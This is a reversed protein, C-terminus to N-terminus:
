MSEAFLFLENIPAENAVDKMSQRDITSGGGVEANITKCKKNTVIFEMDMTKVESSQDKNINENNALINTIPFMLHPNKFSSLFLDNWKKRMLLSQMAIRPIEETLALAMNTVNNNNANQIHKSSKWSNENQDIEYFVQIILNM